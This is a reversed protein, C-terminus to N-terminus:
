THYCAGAVDTPSQRQFLARHHTVTFLKLENNPDDLDFNKSPDEFDKVDVTISNQPIGNSVLFNKVDSVVKQNTSQGQQLIGEKDICAFRAGERAAVNMLNQMDFARGLEMMGFVLTLLIPAVVAFEVAVAGRRREIASKPNRIRM